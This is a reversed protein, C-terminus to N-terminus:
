KQIGGTEVHIYISIIM